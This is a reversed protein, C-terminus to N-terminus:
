KVLKQVAKYRPCAVEHDNIMGVAQMFAYVIVPGCFKFGRLKLDKSMAESEPSKVAHDKYNKVTNVIPKGGVFNWLYESFGNSESDMIQLWAKANGITARIKTESRIIGTDALLRKIKSERYRAIKQPDFGDFAKRFNERKYLITRWSLGAQFGDLILKEFLARDDYEPVGWETDHYNRYIQDDAPAWLCHLKPTQPM